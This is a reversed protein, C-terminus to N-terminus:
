RVDKCKFYMIAEMKINFPNTTNTASAGDLDFCGKLGYHRINTTACDFWSPKNVMGNVNAGDTAVSGATRPFPIWIKTIRNPQLIKCKASQFQKIATLTPVSADDNDITYWLRPYVSAPTAAAGGRAADANPNAISHFKLLVGTIMYRDFLSTFEAVGSVDDFRFSLAFPWDTRATAAPLWQFTQQSFYDAAVYSEMSTCYRKFKYTPFRAGKKRFSRGYRGRPRFFGDGRARKRRYSFASSSYRRKRAPM